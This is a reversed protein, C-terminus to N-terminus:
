HSSRNKLRVRGRHEICEGGEMIGVGFEFLAIRGCDLLCGKSIDEGFLINLSKEANLEEM